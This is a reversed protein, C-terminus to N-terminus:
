LYRGEIPEYKAAYDRKTVAYLCGVESKIVVCDDWPLVVSHHPARPSTVVALGNPLAHVYEWVGSPLQHTDLTWADMVRARKVVRM